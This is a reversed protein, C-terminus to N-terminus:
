KKRAKVFLGIMALNIEKIIKFPSSMAILSVALIMISGFIVVPLIFELGFSFSGYVMLSNTVLATIGMILNNQKIAKLRYDRDSKLRAFDNHFIM